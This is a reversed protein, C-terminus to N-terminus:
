VWWQVEEGGVAGDGQPASGEAAAWHLYSLGRLPDNFVIGYQLATIEMIVM